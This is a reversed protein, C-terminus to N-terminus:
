KSKLEILTLEPWAGIRMPFFISGLGQNVYLYQDGESYLGAWDPYLFVSPSINGLRIQWAHTHGALMLDIPTTPLVEERWHVPNHSLLITFTAPNVDQYAKTLDGYRKFPPEGWNGVGVIAISDQGIHIYRNEDNLVTWGWKEQVEILRQLNSEKDESNLWKVYDGYDHNGLVSYVGYKTHIGSLIDMFETMEDSRTNVLDGTFLVVDPQLGNIREVIKAVFPADGKFSGLHFDSFQLIRLGDFSQPLRPSNVQVEEVILKKRGILGGHLIMGFVITALTIGIVTSINRFRHFRLFPFVAILWYILFLIPPIMFLIFMFFGWRTDHSHNLNVAFYVLFGLAYLCAAIGYIGAGLAFKPSIYKVFRYNIYYAFAAMLVLGINVLLIWM